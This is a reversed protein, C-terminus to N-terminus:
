SAESTPAVAAAARAAEEAMVVVVVGFVIWSMPSETTM